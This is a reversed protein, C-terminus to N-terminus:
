GLAPAAGAFHSLVPEEAPRLEPPRVLMVPSAGMHLVEGAVSSLLARVLGTRGHTAMVVAAADRERAADSIQAAPKGQRVYAEASLGNANLWSLTAELHERAEGELRTRDFAPLCWRRKRGWHTPRLVV